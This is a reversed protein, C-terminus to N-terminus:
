KKRVPEEKWSTELNDLRVTVEKPSGEILPIIKLKIEDGPKKLRVMRLLSDPQRMAVGDASIIVDRERLGARVAPGDARPMVIVLGETRPPFRAIFDRPQQWIEEVAAGLTATEASRKDKLIARISSAPALFAVGAPANGDRMMGSNLGVVEARENLWPGGSTGPPGCGTIHIIEVYDYLWTYFEFTSDNRGVTGRLLVHHRQIPAGYLYIDRGAPPTKEAFPLIPYGKERAPIRLLAVDRGRDIAIVHAELREGDALIVEFHREQTRVVHAATVVVGDAEAIWGSGDLHGDGLIEVCAPKVREYYDEPLAGEAAPLAACDFVGACLLALVCSWAKLKVFAM